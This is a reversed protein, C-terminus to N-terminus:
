TSKSEYSHYLIFTWCILEYSPPVSINDCGNRHFYDTVFLAKETDWFGDSSINCTVIDRSLLHRISHM